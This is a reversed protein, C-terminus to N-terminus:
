NVTNAGLFVHGAEVCCFLCLYFFFLVPLTRANFLLVHLTGMKGGRIERFRM